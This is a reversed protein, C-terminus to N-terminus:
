LEAAIMEVLRAWQEPGPVLGSVYDLAGPGAGRGSDAILEEHTNCIKYAFGHPKSNVERQAAIDSEDNGGYVELDIEQNKQDRIWVVAKDKGVKGQLEVRIESNGCKTQYRRIHERTLSQGIEEMMLKFQDYAPHERRIFVALVSFGLPSVTITDSPYQERLENLPPLYKSFNVVQRFKIVPGRAITENGDCGVIGVYLHRQRLSVLDGAGETVGRGCIWHVEAGKLRWAGAANLFTDVLQLDAPDSTPKSATGDIDSYLLRRLDQGKIAALHDALRPDFQRLTTVGAYFVPSLCASPPKLLYTSQFVYTRPPVLSKVFKLRLASNAARFLRLGEGRM